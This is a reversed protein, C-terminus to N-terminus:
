LQKIKAIIDSTSRGEALPIRALRANCMAAFAVKMMNM